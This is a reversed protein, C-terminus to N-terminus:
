VSRRLRGLQHPSEEDAPNVTGGSFAGSFSETRFKVECCPVGELELMEGLLEAVLIEDDVVLIDGLDTLTQTNAMVDIRLNHIMM